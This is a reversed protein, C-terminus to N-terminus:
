RERRGDGRRPALCPNVAKPPGEGRASRLRHKTPRRESSKATGKPWGVWRPFVRSVPPYKPIERGSNLNAPQIGGARERPPLFAYSSPAPFISLPPPTPQSPPRTLGDAARRGRRLPLRGDIRGPVRGGGE